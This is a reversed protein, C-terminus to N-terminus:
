FEISSLLVIMISSFRNMFVASQYFRFEIAFGLYSFYSISLNFVFQINRNFSKM